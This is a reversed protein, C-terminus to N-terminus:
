DTRLEAHLGNDMLNLEDFTRATVWLHTSTAFPAEPPSDTIVLAAAQYNTLNVLGIVSTVHGAQAPVSSAIIGAALVVPHDTESEDHKGNGTFTNRAIM